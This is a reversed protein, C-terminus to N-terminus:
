LAIKKIKEVFRISVEAKITEFPKLEQKM